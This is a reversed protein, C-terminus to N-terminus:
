SVGGAVALARIREPSLNNLTAAILRANHAVMDDPYVDSSEIRIMECLCMPTVPETNFVRWRSDSGLKAEWPM